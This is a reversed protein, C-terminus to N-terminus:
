DVAGQNAIEREVADLLPQLSHHVTRWVFEEDLNDYDHRYVNGTGMIARWPLNPYRGRMEPTLRRAAESIIEICRIVAYVTRRDNRFEQLSLGSAFERAFGINDRIDFLALRARDFPM